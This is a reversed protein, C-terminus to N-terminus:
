SCSATTCRGGSRQGPGPRRYYLQVDYEETFGYGGHCHLARASAKGAADAAFAMSMSALAGSSGITTSRGRRKM